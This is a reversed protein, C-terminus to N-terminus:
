KCEMLLSVLSLSIVPTSVKIIEAREKVDCNYKVM